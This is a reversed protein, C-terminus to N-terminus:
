LKLFKKLDNNRNLWGKLFKAQTGVGISRYHREHRDVLLRALAVPEFMAAAAVTKPGLRGDVVAGVETQLWKVARSAGSNVAINMVVEGVKSPLEECRNRLWYEEHYIELARAKTLHEIDERPHSRQDIGYKTTGGRDDPDHTAVARGDRYVTEWKLIFPMFARFRPTM